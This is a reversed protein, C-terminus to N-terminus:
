RPQPAGDQRRREYEDYGMRNVRSLCSEQEGPPQRRCDNEASMRMGEYWVRTTCGSLLVVAVTVVLHTM